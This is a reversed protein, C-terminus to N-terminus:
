DNTSARTAAFGVEGSHWAVSTGTTVDYVVKGVNATAERGGDVMEKAETGHEHEAIRSASEGMTGAVKRASGATGAGIIGVGEVAGKAAEKVVGDEGDEERKGPMM